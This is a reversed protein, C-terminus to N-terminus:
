QRRAALEGSVHPHYRTHRDGRSAIWRLAHVVNEREVTSSSTDASDGHVRITHVVWLLRPYGKLVCLGCYYLTGTDDACGVTICPVWITQVVLLLVPYGYRRCLGCYYLTGMDDACGM